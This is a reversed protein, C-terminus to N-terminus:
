PHEYSTLVSNRRHGGSCSSTVTHVLGPVYVHLHFDRFSVLGLSNRKREMPDMRGEGAPNYMASGSTVMLGGGNIVVLRCENFWCSGTHSYHINM